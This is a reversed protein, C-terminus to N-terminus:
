LELSKNYAIEYSSGIKKYLDDPHLGEVWKEGGTVHFTEIAMYCEDECVTISNEEVNSGSTINTIYHINLKNVNKIQGCVQCTFKDRKFVTNKFEKKTIKMDRLYFNQM